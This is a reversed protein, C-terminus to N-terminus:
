ENRILSNQQESHESERFLMKTRCHAIIFRGIWIFYFKLAFGWIFFIPEMATELDILKLQVRIDFNGGVLFAEFVFSLIYLAVTELIFKSNFCSRSKYIQGFVSGWFDFLISEMEM